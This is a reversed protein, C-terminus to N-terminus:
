QDYIMWLLDGSSLLSAWAIQDSAPGRAADRVGATSLATCM